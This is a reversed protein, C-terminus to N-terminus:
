YPHPLNKIAQKREEEREQKYAENQVVKDKQRQMWNIHEIKNQQMKFDYRKKWYEERKQDKLAYLATLEEEVANIQETIKDAQAKTEDKEANTLELEKRM